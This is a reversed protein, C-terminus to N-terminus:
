GDPDHGWLVISITSYSVDVVVPVAVAIRSKKQIYVLNVKMLEPLPPPIYGHELGLTFYIHSDFERDLNHSTPPRTILSLADHLGRM